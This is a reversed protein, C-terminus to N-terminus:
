KKRSRRKQPGNLGEQLLAIRRIVDEHLVRMQTALAGLQEGMEGRVAGFETRMEARVASFEDRMETRLQSVQSTLDDLRRRLEELRSV